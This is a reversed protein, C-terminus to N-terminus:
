HVNNTTSALLHLWVTQGDIPLVYSHTHLYEKKQSWRRERFSSLHPEVTESSPTGTSSRIWHWGQSRGLLIFHLSTLIHLLKTIGMDDPTCCGPIVKSTLYTEPISTSSTDSRSYQQRHASQILFGVFPHTGWCKGKQASSMGPVLRVVVRRFLFPLLM